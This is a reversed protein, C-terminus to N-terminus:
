DLERLRKEIEEIAPMAESLYKPIEEMFKYDANLNNKGRTLLIGVTPNDDSKKM